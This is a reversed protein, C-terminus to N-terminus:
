IRRGLNRRWRTKFAQQNNKGIGIFTWPLRTEQFAAAYLINSNKPDMKLDIFGTSDNIFLVKKWHKGGDVTKFVGRQRNPTFLHGMVAVYVVNPNKPDIQIAAIHQSDELGMDQWTKGADTSKFIGKGSYSYRASFSEGTGVWVLDPNSPAIAIAGISGSGVSDFIPFFTTGNDVTKWVGGNRSGVYFTHNLPKGNKLPVAICSIWSGTRFPGLNRFHFDDLFNKSLSNQALLGSTLTLILAVVSFFKKMKLKNYTIM